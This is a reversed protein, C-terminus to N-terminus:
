EHPSANYGKSLPLPTETASFHVCTSVFCSIFMSSRLWSARAYVKTQMQEETALIAFFRREHIFRRFPLVQSPRVYHDFSWLRHEASEAQLQEVAHQGHAISTAWIVVPNGQRLVNRVHDPMGRSDANVFAVDHSLHSIVDQVRVPQDANGRVPHITISAGTEAEVKKIRWTRM